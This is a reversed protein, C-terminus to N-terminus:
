YDFVYAPVGPVLASSLSPGTGAINGWGWITDDSQPALVHQGGACLSSYEMQDDPSYPANQVQYCAQELQGANNNGWGILSVGDQLGITYDSDAVLNTVGSLNPITQPSSAQTMTGDGLQGNYNAGWAEVTGDSM